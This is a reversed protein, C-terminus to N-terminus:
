SGNYSDVVEAFDQLDTDGDANVEFPTQLWGSVDSMQAGNPGQLMAEGTSENPFVVSFQYWYYETTDTGCCDADVISSVWEVSPNGDVGACKVHDGDLRIRWSGAAEFGHNNKSPDGEIFLVRNPNGMSSTTNTAGTGTTKVRFYSTRDVWQPQAGGAGIASKFEIRFPNGTESDDYYVPGYHHIEVETLSTLSTVSYVEKQHPKCDPLVGSPPASERQHFNFPARGIAGGGLESSLYIYYSKYEEGAPFQNSPHDLGVLNDHRYSFDWEM